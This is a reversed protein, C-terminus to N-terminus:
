QVRRAYFDGEVRWTVGDRELTEGTWRFVDTEINTFNWRIPTDVRNTGIQVIDTGSRRERSKVVAEGFPRWLELLFLKKKIRQCAEDRLV